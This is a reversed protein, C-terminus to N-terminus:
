VISCIGHTPTPSATALEPSLLASATHGLALLSEIYPDDPLNIPDVPTPPPVNALFGGEGCNPFIANLAVQTALVSQDM